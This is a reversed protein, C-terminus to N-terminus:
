TNQIPGSGADLIYKGIAPLYRKIKRRCASIYNRAVPRLDEWLIADLTNGSSDAEWGPGEYFKKVGDNEKM